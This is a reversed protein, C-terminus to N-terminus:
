RGDVNDRGPFLARIAARSAAIEAVGGYHKTDRSCHIGPHVRSRGASELDLAVIVDAGCVPCLLKVGQNHLDVLQPFTDRAPDIRHSLTM